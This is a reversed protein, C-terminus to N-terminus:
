LRLVTLKYHRKNVLMWVAALVMLSLLSNKILIKSNRNITRHKENCLRLLKWFYRSPLVEMESDSIIFGMSAKGVKEIQESGENSTAKRFCKLTDGFKNRPDNRSLKRFWSYLKGILKFDSKLEPNVNCCKQSPDANLGLFKSTPISLACHALAFDLFLTLILSSVKAPHYLM